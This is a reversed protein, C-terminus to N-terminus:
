SNRFDINNKLNYLIDNLKDRYIPVLIEISLNQNIMYVISFEFVSLELNYALQYNGIFEHLIFVIKSRGYIKNILGEFSILQNFILNKINQTIFSFKDNIYSLKIKNIVEIPSNSHTTNM